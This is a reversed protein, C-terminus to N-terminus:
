VDLLVCRERARVPTHCGISISDRHVVSHSTCLPPHLRLMVAIIWPHLLKALCQQATSNHWVCRSAHPLTFWASRSVCQDGRSHAVWAAGRLIPGATKRPKGGVRM